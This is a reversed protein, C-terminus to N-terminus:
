RRESDKRMRRRRRVWERLQHCRYWIEYYLLEGILWALYLAAMVAVGIPLFILLTLAM